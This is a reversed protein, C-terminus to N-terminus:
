NEEEYEIGEIIDKRILILDGLEYLEIILKDNKGKKHYSRLYYTNRILNDNKLIGAKELADGIPKEINNTDAAPQRCIKLIMDVKKNYDCITTIGEAKIIYILDSIFQNYKETNCIIKIKRGNKWITKIMWKENLSVLKGEYEFKFLLM